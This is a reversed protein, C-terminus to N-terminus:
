RGDLLGRERKYNLNNRARELLKSNTIKEGLVERAREKANYFDEFKEFYYKKGDKTTANALRILYALQYIEREKNLYRKKHAKQYLKMENLTMRRADLLSVGFDAM